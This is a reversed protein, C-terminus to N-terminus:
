RGGGNAREEIRDILRCVNKPDALLRSYDGVRDVGLFPALFPSAALLAHGAVNALPRHMELFIVAPVELGRKSVEEALRDVMAEEREPDTENLWSNLM